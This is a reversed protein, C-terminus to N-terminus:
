KRGEGGGNGKGKRDEFDLRSTLEGLSTRRPAYFRMTTCNYCCMTHLLAHASPRVTLQVARHSVRCDVVLLGEWRGCGKRKKELVSQMSEGSQKSNSRLMFM